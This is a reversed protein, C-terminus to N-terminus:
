QVGGKAVSASTASSTQPKFSGFIDAFPGDTNSLVSKISPAVKQLYFHQAYTMGDGFAAVANKLPEAKAQYEFLVVKADAEGRSLM